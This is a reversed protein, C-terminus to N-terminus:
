SQTSPRRASPWTIMSSKGPTPFVISAFDSARESSTSKERM